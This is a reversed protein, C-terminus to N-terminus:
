QGARPRSLGDPVPEAARELAGVTPSGGRRVGLLDDAPMGIMAFSV